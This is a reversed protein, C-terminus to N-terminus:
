SVSVTRVMNPHIACYYPCDGAEELTHSFSQGPVLLPNLDPSSNFKGDPKEGSGSTVTYPTSDDNTWTLTAAASKM